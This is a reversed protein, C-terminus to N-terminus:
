ARMLLFCAPRSLSSYAEFLNTDKRKYKNEHFITNIDLSEPLNWIETTIFYNFIAEKSFILWAQYILDIHLVPCIM